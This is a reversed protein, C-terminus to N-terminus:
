QPPDPPQPLITRSAPARDQHQLLLAASGGAIVAAGTVYWLWHRGRRNQYPPPGTVATSSDADTANMQPPRIEPPPLESQGQDISVIIDPAELLGHLLDRL